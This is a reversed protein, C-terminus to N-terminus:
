VAVAATGASETEDLHGGLVLGVGGDGAEVARIQIASLDPHLQRHGACGLPTRGRPPTPPALPPLAFEPYAPSDGTFISTNSLWISAARLVRFFCISFSPM